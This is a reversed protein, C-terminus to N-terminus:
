MEDKNLYDERKTSGLLRASASIRFTVNDKLQVTGSLFDGGHLLVVGGGAQTCADIAAQIAATDLTKGDGKGGHDRVDYIDGHPAAPAALMTVSLALTLLM